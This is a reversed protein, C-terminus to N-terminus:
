GPTNARRRRRESMRYWWDPGRAVILTIPYAAGLLLMSPPITRIPYPLPPWPLLVACAGFYLAAWIGTWAARWDGGPRRSAYRALARLLVPSLRMPARAHVLSMFAVHLFILASVAMWLHFLYVEPTFSALTFPHIFVALVFFHVLMAIITLLWLVVLAAEVRPDLVPRLLRQLADHPPGSPPQPFDHEM